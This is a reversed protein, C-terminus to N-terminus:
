GKFFADGALARDLFDEPTVTEPRFVIEIGFRRELLDHRARVQFDFDSIVLVSRSQGCLM